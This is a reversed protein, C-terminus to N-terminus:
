TGSDGGKSSRTGFPIANSSLVRVPTQVKARQARHDRRHITLHRPKGSMSLAASRVSAAGTTRVSNTAPRTMKRSGTKAFQDYDGVTIQEFSKDRAGLFTGFTAVHKAFRSVENPSMHIREFHDLWARVADIPRYDDDLVTWSVTGDPRRIRGAHM